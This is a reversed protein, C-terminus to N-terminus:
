AAVKKWRGAQGYIMGTHKGQTRVFGRAKLIEIRRRSLRGPLNNKTVRGMAENIRTPTPFVGDRIMREVVECFRDMETVAKVGKRIPGILEYEAGGLTRAYFFTPPLALPMHTVYVGQVEIREFHHVIRVSAIGMRELSEVIARTQKCDRM